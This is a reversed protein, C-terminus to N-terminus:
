KGMDERHTYVRVLRTRPHTLLEYPITGCVAALEGFDPLCFVDGEQLHPVETADVTTQDMCVRGVIPCPIGRIQVTAGAAGRPIGDAYGVPLTAILRPREALYAGGYGVTEGRGVTRRAVVRGTLSLVPLVERTEGNPTYGYLLIGVRAMDWGGEGLALASNAGHVLPPKLGMETLDALVEEFRARQKKCADGAGTAFHTFIGEAHLRPLRLARVLSWFVAESEFCRFGFRGMGTDIAIHVSLTQGCAASLAEAYSLSGVSQTLRHETLLDAEAPPTYGLVLCPLTVGAERLTIGERATAVALWDAGWREYLPALVAAGHGYADAKVVCCLLGGVRERVFRFNQEARKLDIECRVLGDM